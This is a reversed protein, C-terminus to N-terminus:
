ENRIQSMLMRMAIVNVSLILRAQHTWFNRLKKYLCAPRYAENKFPCPCWPMKEKTFPVRHPFQLNRSSYLHIDLAGLCHGPAHLCHLDKNGRYLMLGSCTLYNCCFNSRTKTLAMYHQVFRQIYGWSFEMISIANTVNRDDAQESTTRKERLLNHISVNMEGDPSRWHKKGKDIWNLQLSIIHYSQIEEIQVNRLLM